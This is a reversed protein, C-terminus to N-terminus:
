LPFLILLLYKRLSVFSSVALLQWHMPVSAIYIEAAKVSTIKKVKLALRMVDHNKM